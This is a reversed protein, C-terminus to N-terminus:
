VNGPRFGLGQIGLGSLLTLTESLPLGVVNTYSGNIAPIFAAAAGQIAYGGAKGVGEGGEAYATIEANTLRRMSVRTLVVRSHMRGDPSTLAIATIVQHRRGSLRELCDRVEDANAAKPLIRRGLTVVTDAALILTDGPHHARAARAKEIAVRRAYARPVEGKLPTEDIRAAFVSDPTIGAQNLLALRRPSESALVLKLVPRM